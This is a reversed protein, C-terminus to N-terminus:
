FLLGILMLVLGILSVAFAGTRIYSVGFLYLPLYVLRAWFWLAAGAAGIGGARGSVALALALAVFAPYTELFNRLARAARGAYVSRPKRNEDRPGANYRPGTDKVWLVGQVGVHILLLVVSWALYILETSLAASPNM